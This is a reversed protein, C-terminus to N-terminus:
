IGGELKGGCPGYQMTEQFWLPLLCSYQGVQTAGIQGNIQGLCPMFFRHQVALRPRPQVARIIPTQVIVPYRRQEDGAVGQM